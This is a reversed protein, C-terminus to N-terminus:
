LGGGERKEPVAQVFTSLIFLIFAYIMPECDSRIGAEYTVDQWLGLFGQRFLTIEHLGLLQFWISSMVLLLISVQLRKRNKPTNIDGKAVDLMVQALFILSAASAVFVPLDKILRFLLMGSYIQPSKALDYPLELMMNYFPIQANVVHGTVAALVEYVRVFFRYLLFIGGGSLLLCATMRLWGANRDLQKIQKEQDVQDRRKGSGTIGPLTLEYQRLILGGVIVLAPIGIIKYIQFYYSTDRFLETLVSADGYMSGNQIGPLIQKTIEMYINGALWIGGSLLLLRSSRKRFLCRKDGNRLALILAVTYLVGMGTIALTEITEFMTPEEEALVSNIYQQYAEESVFVEEPKPDLFFTGSNLHRVFQYESGEEIDEKVFEAEWIFIGGVLLFAFLIIKMTFYILHMRKHIKEPIEDVPEPAKKAKERKEFM